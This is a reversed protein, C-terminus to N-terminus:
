RSERKLLLADVIFCAGAFMWASPAWWQYLGCSVVGVGLFGYVAIAARKRM